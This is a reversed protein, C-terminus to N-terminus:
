ENVDLKDISFTRWQIEETPKEGSIHNFWDEFTYVTEMCQEVYHSYEKLLTQIAERKEDDMGTVDIAKINSPPVTTPIITRESYEGKANTYTVDLLEHKQVSRTDIM